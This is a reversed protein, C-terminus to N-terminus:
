VAVELHKRVPLLQKVERLEVLNLGHPETAEVVEVAPGVEDFRMPLTHMSHTLHAISHGCKEQDSLLSVAHAGRDHSPSVARLSYTLPAVLSVLAAGQLTLRSPATIGERWQLKM